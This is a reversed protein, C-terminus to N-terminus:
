YSKLALVAKSGGVTLCVWISWFVAAEALVHRTWKRSPVACLIGQVLGQM